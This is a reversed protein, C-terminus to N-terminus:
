RSRGEAELKPQDSGESKSEPRTAPQGTGAQESEKRNRRNGWALIISPASFIIVPLWIPVAVLSIRRKWENDGTFTKDSWWFGRKNWFTEVPWGWSSGKKYPASWVDWTRGNLPPDFQRIESSELRRFLRIGHPGWGLSFFYEERDGSDTMYENGVGVGEDLGRSRVFLILFAISVVLSVVSLSKKMEQLVYLGDM